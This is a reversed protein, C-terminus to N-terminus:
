KESVIQSRLSLVVQVRGRFDEVFGTVAIKRGALARLDAIPLPFPEQVFVEFDDGSLLYVYREKEAVERCVFAVTAVSGLKSRADAAGVVPWPKKRWLGRREGRAQKQAKRFLAKLDDRYPYRTFAYAFGERIIRENFLTGDALVVYALTRGYDDAQEWDYTLGVTKEYLHHFAFRKAMHAFFLVTERGDDMEPSDIGILRVKKEAGDKLRVEITDGDYVRTM